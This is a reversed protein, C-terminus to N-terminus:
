LYMAAAFALAALLGTVRSKTDKLAFVVPDDHLEGRAGVVWIRSVWFLLLPCIVWLAYPQSFRAHTVPDNVYLAFVLVSLMGTAVGQTQLVPLDSVFYGRGSARAQRREQASQLEVARKLCALSHFIFLSFALIWFSPVIRVLAAGALIRLTYLGALATVDFVMHRKLRLSYALTCVWYCALVLAFQWSAIAIALGFAAVLCVLAALLGLSLPMVGSAIPRTRKRPHQRDSELDFLDNLLYVSSACLGFSVFSIALAWWSSAPLQRAIPLFPLAILVNKAWQHIRIAKLFEALGCRPPVIKAALRTLRSVREALSADASVVVAAEAEKWIVLDVTADGVYCFPGNADARIAALKPAGSLNTKESSALVCDFVGLHAAVAEAYSRHSATALVVRRGQARADNIFALVDPDFPLWSVDIEVRNAIQAKLEAKGECLWVLMRVVSLPEAKVLKLASEILLDSRILTGDLDV